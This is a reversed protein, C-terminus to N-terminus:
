DVNKPYLLELLAKENKVSAADPINKLTKFPCDKWNEYFEIKENQFEKEIELVVSKYKEQNIKKLKVLLQDLSNKYKFNYGNIRDSLVDAYKIKFEKYADLVLNKEYKERWLRLRM